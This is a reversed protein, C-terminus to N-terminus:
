FSTFPKTKRLYFIEINPFFKRFITRGVIGLLLHLVFPVKGINAFMLMYLVLWVGTYKTNM